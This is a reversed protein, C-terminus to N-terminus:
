DPVPHDRGELLGRAALQQVPLLFEVRLDILDAPHDLLYDRVELGPPDHVGIVPAGDSCEFCSDGSYDAQMEVSHGSYGEIEATIPRCKQLSAHIVRWTSSTPWPM